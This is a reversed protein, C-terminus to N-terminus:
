AVTILKVNHYAQSAQPTAVLLVDAYVLIVGEQQKKGSSSRGAQRGASGRVGSPPKLEVRNNSTSNIGFLRPQTTM